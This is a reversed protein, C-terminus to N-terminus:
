YLASVESSSSPSQGHLVSGGEPVGRGANKDREPQQVAVAFVM